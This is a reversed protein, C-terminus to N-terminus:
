EFDQNSSGCYVSEIKYIVYPNGNPSIGRFALKIGPFSFDPELIINLPIYRNPFSSPHFILYKARKERAYSIIEPLSNFPIIIQKEPAFGALYWLSQNELEAMFNCGPPLMLKVKEAIEKRYSVESWYNNDRPSSAILIIASVALVLTTLCIDVPIIIKRIKIEAFNALRFIRETGRGVIMMFWPILTFFFRPFGSAFLPVLLIPILAFSHLYLEWGYKKHAKSPLLGSPLLILWLWPAIAQLFFSIIFRRFNLWFRELYIAPFQKRNKWIIGTITQKLPIKDGEIIRQILTYTGLEDEEIYYQYGRPHYLNHLVFLTHAKPNFSFVGTDRYYSALYFGSVLFYGITLLLLSLLTKKLGLRLWLNYALAIISFTLFFAWVEPKTLFSIGFLAGTLFFLIPKRSKLAYVGSLIATYLFLMEVQEALDSASYNFFRFAFFLAGLIAARKGFITLALFYLPFITLANASIAVLRCASEFNRTLFQVLLVLFSSFPPYHYHIAHKFDLALLSRAVFIYREDDNGWAPNTHLWYILRVLFGALFIGLPIFFDQSSRKQQVGIEPM